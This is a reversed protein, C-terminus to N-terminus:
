KRGLPNTKWPAACHVSIVVARNYMEQGYSINTLGYVYRIDLGLRKQKIQFEYGAGMQISADWRKFSEGSNKFPIPASVGDTKGSAYLNYAISPGANVYFKGLHFRALVPLELTGLTFSTQAGTLPNGAKLSGGQKMFYLESVLSFAPTIGAQFSVGLQIGPSSKKYDSLSSNAKGYNFNTSAVNVLLDFYTETVKGNNIYESGGQNTQGFTNASLFIMGIMLATQVKKKM